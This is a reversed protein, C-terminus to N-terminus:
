FSLSHSDVAFTGFHWARVCAGPVLPELLAITKAKSVGQGILTLFVQLQVLSFLAGFVYFVPFFVFLIPNSM